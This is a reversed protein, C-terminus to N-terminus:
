CPCANPAPSVAILRVQHAKGPYMEGLAMFGTLGEPTGDKVGAWAWRRHEAKIPVVHREVACGQM